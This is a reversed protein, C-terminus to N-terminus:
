MILTISKGVLVGAQKARKEMIMPRVKPYKELLILFQIQTQWVSVNPPINLLHGM